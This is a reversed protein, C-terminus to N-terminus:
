PKPVPVFGAAINKFTALDVGRGTLQYAHTSGPNVFITYATNGGTRDLAGSLGGFRAKGLAADHASCTAASTTCFAGEDLTISGSGPSDFFVTLKGGPWMTGQAISWGSPLTGACYITMVMTSSAKAFFAKNEDTGWCVSEPAPTDTAV